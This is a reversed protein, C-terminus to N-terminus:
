ILIHNSMAHHFYFSVFSIIIPRKILIIHVHKAACEPVLTILNCKNNGGPAAHTALDILVSINLIIVLHM